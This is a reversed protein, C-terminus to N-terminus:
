REAGSEDALRIEEAASRLHPALAQLLEELAPALKQVEHLMGAM